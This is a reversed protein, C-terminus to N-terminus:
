VLEFIGHHILRNFAESAQLGAYLDKMRGSDSCFKALNMKMMIDAHFWMYHNDVYQPSPIM